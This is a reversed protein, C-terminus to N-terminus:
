DLKLKQYEIIISDMEREIKEASAVVIAITYSGSTSATITNSFRSFHKKARELQTRIKISNNVYNSLFDLNDGFDSVTKTYGTQYPTLVSASKLIYLVVMRELLMQETNALNLLSAKDDVRNKLLIVTLQECANLLKETKSNLQLLQSTNNPSVAYIAKISQWFQDMATLQQQVKADNSFSKLDLLQADFVTVEQALEQQAKRVRMEMAMLGYNKLMQLTLTRQKGAIHIAEELTKIGACAVSSNLAFTLFTMLWFIRRLQLITKMFFNEM